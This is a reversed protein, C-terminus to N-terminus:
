KILIKERISVRKGNLETIRLEGGLNESLSGETKIPNIRVKYDMEFKLSKKGKLVGNRMELNLIPKVELNATVKNVTELRSYHPHNRLNLNAPFENIFQPEIVGEIDCGPGYKFDIPQIKAEMIMKMWDIKHKKCNDVRFGKSKKNSQKASGFLLPRILNEISNKAEVIESGANTNLSLFFLLLLSM